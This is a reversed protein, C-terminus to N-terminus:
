IDHRACDFICDCRRCDVVCRQGAVRFWLWVRVKALWVIIPHRDHYYSKMRDDLRAFWTKPWRQPSM